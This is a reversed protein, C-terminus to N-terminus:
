ETSLNYKRFDDLENLSPSEWVTEYFSKESVTRFYSDSHLRLYQAQSEPPALLEIQRKITMFSEDRANQSETASQFALVTARYANFITGPADATKKEMNSLLALMAYRMGHRATKIAEVYKNLRLSYLSERMSDGMGMYIGAVKLDRFGLRLYLLADRDKHKFVQPSLDNLMARTSEIDRTLSTRYNSILLKQSKRIEGYSEKFFFRMYLLQSLIDRQIAERYIKKEEDSGRNSISSNIFYFFYKNDRLGKEAKVQEGARQSSKVRQANAAQPLSLLILFLVTILAAAPSIRRHPSKHNM